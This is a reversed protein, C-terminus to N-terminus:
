EIVLLDIEELNPLVVAGGSLELKGHRISTVSKANPYGPLEIRLGTVPQLRARNLANEDMRYSWNMLAVSRRGDKRLAIAEVLPDSPIAPRWVKRSVAPGAILERLAPDFDDRMNFDPRRVTASYSIGAWLGAAIAEGNGHRNRTVAAKGDAFSHRTEATTPELPERAIRASFVKNGTKISASAPASAEALPELTTARYQAVGGWSELTRAKLGLMENMNASPQNAEDRSLGTADTWVTGGAAVWDRLSRAAEHHLHPGPVYIVKYRGLKGEALQRESLVDVPIHAHRLALYVWKANEFAALSPDTARSWIESSRPSVFAVEPQGDFSAEYLYPEARGLFRAARAVQELLEPSQSFSDGKSYDPGYTYWELATTGRAVIGLMRQAPAGRHPKVLCGQALGHRLAIGRGIDALYSEWQWVRADRNSTEFVFARNPKLDYFEHWDLSSGNWSPTPGQMAYLKVGSEALAAAAEPFMVGNAHSMLRYTYYYRLSDAKGAPAPKLGTPFAKKDKAEADSLWLPYPRVEDWSRAGVQAPDVHNSKLYDRFVTACRECRAIHEKAYVGMEDDWLGWSERAGASQHVKLAKAVAERIYPKLAPDYPCGDPMEASKAGKQFFAMPDGSGPPGWFIRRFRDGVGAADALHISDVMGNVGLLALVQFEDRLIAPNNHRVGFGHSGRLGPPGDGYGGMHGIIAFQRPLPAPDPFAKELRERRLRAHASLGNLQSTFGPTPSKALMGGPFAFGVTSGKPATETFSRFVKGQESFEFEVAVDTLTPGPTVSKGKAVPESTVVVSPFEWGKATGVIEKLSVPETWSGVPVAAKDGAAKFQGRVVAGGLGEGGRRWNVLVVDSAPTSKTVRVRVFLRGTAAGRAAVDNRDIQEQALVLSACAVALLLSPLSKM